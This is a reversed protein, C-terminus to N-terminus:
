TALSSRQRSAQDKRTSDIAFLTLTLVLSRLLRDFKLTSVQLSQSLKVFDRQVAESNDIDIQMSQVKNRLSMLEEDLKNKVDTLQGVQWKLDTTTRDNDTILSAIKENCQALIEEQEKM